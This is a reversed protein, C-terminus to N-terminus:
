KVFGSLEQQLIEDFRGQLANKAWEQGMAISEATLTPTVESLKKGTPTHYFAIMDHIEQDSFHKMYIHASRTQFDAYEGAMASILRNKINKAVIRIIMPDDVLHAALERKVIPQLGKELNIATANLVNQLQQQGAVIAALELAAPTPADEQALAQAPLALLLCIAACFLRFM